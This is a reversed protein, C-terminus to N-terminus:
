CFLLDWRICWLTLPHVLGVELVQLAERQLAAVGTEFNYLWQQETGKM